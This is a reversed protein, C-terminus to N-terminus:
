RQRTPDGPSGGPQQSAQEMRQRHRELDSRLEGVLRQYIEKARRLADDNTDDV